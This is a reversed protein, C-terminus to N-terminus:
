NVRWSSPLIGKGESGAQGRIGLLEYNDNVGTTKITMQVTRATKNLNAWRIIQSSDAGGADANTDGWLADGWMDAGWGSNGTNPTISFAEASVITGNRQELTIDESVSGSINRFQTFVSKINKFVSWDGFDEQRTRLITPIAAGKDTTIAESFEDVLPSDDRGFLLHKDNNVDYFIEYVFADRTWPGVWALRERDFVMTRDLGPFSMVYKFDFYSATAGMKQPTTLNKFFPRVKVSIEATRLIDQPFNQEYGLSNLGDRDLFYIDNEVPVVSRPAVCGKSATILQLVPTTIFFNGVQETTLTIQWISREKFVVIRDRFIEIQTINDGSDPEIEIYNGGFSLDFKTENPVRGSILVQSPHGSIGAFVLRDFFRKIYKAKPGGTSDATPPFTFETPIASGDDIFSTTSAPVSSLFREEGPERGYINYGQLVGSVTSVPSWALRIQGGAGGLDQPQTPLSVETSALTEGVQSIASVRYAKTTAGTANSINSAGLGSPIDITPFGVLTPLSYRVLERQGNVIYMTNNLQAMYANNGSAWSAGLIMSYSQGNQKTLYGEDTIALLEVTGNSTYYGKLGRISGTAGAQHNLQTGWRKTPIGKGKLIINDAQALEDADIENERLLTNLGRRFTDWVFKAEKQPRYNYDRSQTLFRM